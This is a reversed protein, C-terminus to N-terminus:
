LPQYLYISSKEDRLADSPFHTDRALIYPSKYKTCSEFARDVFRHKQIFHEIPAQNFRQGTRSSDILKWITPHHAGVVENFRRYWGLQTARPLYIRLLQMSSIQLVRGIMRSKHEAIKTNQSRQTRRGKHKAVKNNPSWITRHGYQEAVM